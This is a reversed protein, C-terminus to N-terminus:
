TIKLKNKNNKHWLQPYETLWHRGIQPKNIPILVKQLFM